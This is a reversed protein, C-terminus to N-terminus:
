PVSPKITIQCNCTPYHALQTCRFSFSSGVAMLKDSDLLGDEPYRCQCNMKVSIYIFSPKLDVLLLMKCRHQSRNDFDTGGMIIDTLLKMGRSTASRHYFQSNERYHGQICTKHQYLPETSTRQCNFEPTSSQQKMQINTKM